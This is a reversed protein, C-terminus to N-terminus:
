RSGKLYGRLEEELEGLPRTRMGRVPTKSPMLAIGSLDPARVQKSGDALTEVRLMGQSMGVVYSAVGRREVFLVAEEGVRLIAAGFVRMEIGDVIGGERRITITQGPEAAGKYAREIRVTVDTYIADHDRTWSAQSSMVTGLVVRDARRTLAQLDLPIMTTASAVGSVLCLSAVLALRSM